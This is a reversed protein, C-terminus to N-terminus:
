CVTHYQFRRWVHKISWYNAVWALQVGGYEVMWVKDHLSTSQQKRLLLVRQWASALM